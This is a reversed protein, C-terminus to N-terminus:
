SVGFWLTTYGLCNQLKPIKRFLNKAGPFDSPMYIRLVNSFPHQMVVKPSIDVPNVLVM